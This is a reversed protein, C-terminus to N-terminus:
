PRRQRSWRDATRLTIVSSSHRGRSSPLRQRPIHLLRVEARFFHRPDRQRVILPKSLASMDNDSTDRCKLLVYRATGNKTALGRAATAFM